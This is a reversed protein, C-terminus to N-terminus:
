RFSPIRLELQRPHSHLPFDVAASLLIPSPPPQTFSSAARKGPTSPGSPQKGAGGPASPKAANPPKKNPSEIPVNQAPDAPEPPKEVLVAQQVTRVSKDELCCVCVWCVCCSCLTAIWGILAVPAVLAPMNLFWQQDSSQSAGSAASDVIGDIGCVGVGSSATTRILDIQLRGLAPSMDDGGSLVVTRVRTVHVLEFRRLVVDGGAFYRQMAEAGTISDARMTSPAALTGNAIRQVVADYAAVPFASPGSLCLVDVTLDSSVASAFLLLPFWRPSRM